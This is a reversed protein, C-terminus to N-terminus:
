EPTETERDPENIGSSEPSTPAEVPDEVKKRRGRKKPAPSQIGAEVGSLHASIAYALERWETQVSAIKEKLVDDTVGASLANLHYDVIHASKILDLNEM